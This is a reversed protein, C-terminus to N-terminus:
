GPRGHRADPGAPDLRYASTHCFACNVAIRPGGFLDATSFGVPLEHRAGLSGSRTTAAPGRCNTPSYVRFLRGSGTLSDRKRNSASRDTNSSNRSTTSSPGRRTRRPMSRRAQLLGCCLVALVAALRQM